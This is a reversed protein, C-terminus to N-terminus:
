YLEFAIPESDGATLDALPRGDIRAPVGLPDFRVTYRGPRELSYLLALDIVAYLREGPALTVIADDPPPLARKVLRGEYGLHVGDEERVVDFLDASIISEFPTNWLLLELPEDTTNSASVRVELPSAVPSLPTPLSLMAALEGGGGDAPDIAESPSAGNAEDSRVEVRAPSENATTENTMDTSDSTCGILLLPFAATALSFRGLVRHGASM